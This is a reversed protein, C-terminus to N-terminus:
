NRGEWRSVTFRTRGSLDHEFTVPGWGAVTGFVGEVAPGQDSGIELFIWGGDRLVAGAGAVITRVVALGDPGGDLAIRPEHDRVEPELGAIMDSPVYPPNSIVADFSEGSEIADFVDPGCLRLHLRDALGTRVANERALSLAADSLDIAVIEGVLHEHLLALSIAGSGVGIELALSLPPARHGAPGPPSPDVASAVVDILEETEPRPILARPDCGLRLQRFEVAGEIHQLPERNLRRGVARAIAGGEGPSLPRDPNARLEAGTTDLATAVLRPADIGPSEIGAASLEAAVGEIVDRLRPGAPRRAGDPSRSVDKM